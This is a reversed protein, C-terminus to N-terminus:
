CTASLRDKVMQGIKGMDIRGAHREKIIAMVKGMDKICNAGTESVAADVAAATEAEDMQKPLFREIVDIEAQERDVLDQRNGEAYLRILEKRQKVMTQLMSLIEADDLGDDRGQGRAAIDRDKLAAIILRVTALTIDDKNKLADKMTTNFQPRLISTM